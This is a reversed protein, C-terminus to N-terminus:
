LPQEQGDKELTVKLAAHGALVAALAATLQAAQATPAPVSTLTMPLPSEGSLIKRLSDRIQLQANEEEGHARPSYSGRMLLVRDFNYRLAQSMAYLLDIFRDSGRDVWAQIQADPINQQNLHDHYIHWADIVAKEKQSRAGNFEIDIMNLARVHEFSVRAARTAMLTNFLNIKRQDGARAREIWKQAQVAVVPGALTSLILLGESIYM